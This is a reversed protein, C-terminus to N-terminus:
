AVKRTKIRFLKSKEFLRLMEKKRQLHDTLKLDNINQNVLYYDISQLLSEYDKSNDIKVIISLFIEMLFEVLDKMTDCDIKSFIEFDARHVMSHRKEMFYRIIDYFPENKGIFAIIRKPILEHKDEKKTTFIVELAQWLYFCCLWDEDYNDLALNHLKFALVIKNKLKEDKLQTIKKSIKRYKPILNVKLNIEDLKFAREESVDIRFKLTIYEKKENFILLLPSEKILSIPRRPWIIYPTIMYREIFNIISRFIEFFEESNEAFQYENKGRGEIIFFANQPNFHKFSSHTEIDHQLKKSEIDFRKKVWQYDRILIKRDLLNFHKIKVSSSEINSPIILYHLLLPQHTFKEIQLKLETEFIKLLDTSEYQPLNLLSDRIIRSKESNTIRIHFRVHYMISYQYRDFLLINSMGIIKRGPEVYKAINTLYQQIIEPNKLEFEM